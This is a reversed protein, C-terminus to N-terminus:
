RHRSARLIPWSPSIWLKLFFSQPTWKLLSVVSWYLVFIYKASDLQLHPKSRSVAGDYDEPCGLCRSVYVAPSPIGQRENRPAESAETRLVRM